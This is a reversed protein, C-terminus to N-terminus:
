SQLVVAVRKLREAADDAVAQIAQNGELVDMSLMANPNIISVESNGDVERVTVNCPLMLGVLPESSLARHALPPNCAGLITYKDFEVDLKKKLTERVDIETLVGFGEDKLAATVKGLAEEYPIELKVSFAFSQTM